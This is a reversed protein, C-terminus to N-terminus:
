EETEKKKKTNKKTKKKTTTKKAPKVDEDDKTDEDVVEDKVEDEKVEDEGLSPQHETNDDKVDEDKIEDIIEPLKEKIEEDTLKSKELEKAEDETIQEADDPVPIKDLMDDVNVFDKDTNQNTILLNKRRNKIMKNIERVQQISVIASQGPKIKISGGTKLKLTITEGTTNVLKSATM